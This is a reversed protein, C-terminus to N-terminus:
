GIKMLLYKVVYHLYYKNIIFKKLFYLKLFQKMLNILNIMTYFYIIRYCDNFQKHSLLQSPYTLFILISDFLLYIILM